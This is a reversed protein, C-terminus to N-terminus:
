LFKFGEQEAPFHNGKGNGEDNAAGKCFDDFGKHAIDNRRGDAHDPAIGIKRCKGKAADFDAIEDISDETEKNYTRHQKKDYFGSAFLSLIDFLGKLITLNAATKLGVGCVWTAVRM